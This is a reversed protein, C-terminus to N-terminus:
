NVMVKISENGAKVIYMGPIMQNNHRMQNGTVNFINYNDITGSVVIRGNIAKAELKKTDASKTATPSPTVYQDTGSTLWDLSFRVFIMDYTNGTSGDEFYMGITGDNLITFTSYASSGACITKRIPFSVGENYSLLMSVNTRSGAYCLSHLMRNKDFGDLTSTYTMIEGNCAPDTLDAHQSATGWTLGKDTSVNTYRKPAKRVSVLVDGNNREVFKSEDGGDIASATGVKWTQGLDDTYVSYVQLGSKVGDRVVGAFMIRGSRLQLGRGSSIFMGAWNQTAANSCGAGYLQNTIDKPASWTIGNDDSEMSIVKIPASATSGFFGKDHVVLCIIKGTVRDVVLAPDGYGLSTGAGCTMLVNSWTKGNDTSRRVYQDIDSALDGSSFNRKDTSTILSGDKATIISPIRYSVSNYDGPTFLISQTLFITASNAPSPTSALVESAGVLKMGLVSADIQNGETANENVDVVVCFNNAGSSLSIPSGLTVTIDGTVISATGIQTATSPDFKATPISYIRLNNIDTINSTGSFNMRIAELSAAGTIGSVQASFYVVAFNSNGKGTVLRGQSVGVNNISQPTNLETESVKKLRWASASNLTNTSWTVLQTGSQQAHLYDQGDAKLLLQADTLWTINFGIPNATTGQTRPDASIYLSSAMNQIALKGNGADTFKWLKNPDLSKTTYLIFTGATNNQNLLVNDKSYTSNASTIYYWTDNGATSITIPNKTAANYATVAAELNSAASTYEADTVNTAYIGQATSIAATLDANAQSSASIYGPDESQLATKANNATSIANALQEKPTVPVAKFIWATNTNLAASNWRDCTLTNWAITFSTSSNNRISYQNSGLSNFIFADTSTTAVSHSSAMFFGTGKNKLYQTGGITVIAWKEVDAGTTLRYLIKGAAAPSYLVYGKDKLPIISTLTSNPAGLSTVAASEIYYWIESGVTSPVPTVQASLSQMFGGLLLFLIFISKRAM